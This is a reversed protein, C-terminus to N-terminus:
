ANGTQENEHGRYIYKAWQKGDKHVIDTEIIYGAKRLNYIRASLRFCGYLDLAIMPTIYGFMQLHTLIKNNQTNTM